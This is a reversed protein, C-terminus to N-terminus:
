GLRQKVGHITDWGFERADLADDLRPGAKSRTWRKELSAYPIGRFGAITDSGDVFGNLCTGLTPHSLFFDRLVSGM